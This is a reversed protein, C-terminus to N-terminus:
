PGAFWDFENWAGVQTAHQTTDIDNFTGAVFSIDDVFSDTDHILGLVLGNIVQITVGRNTVWLGRPTIYDNQVNLIGFGHIALPEDQAQAVSAVSPLVALFLALAFAHKM